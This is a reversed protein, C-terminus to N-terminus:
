SGAPVEAPVKSRNRRGGLALAPAGTLSVLLTLAYVFLGLLVAEGENVGHADLFLVLAGERVGLGGIASLNQVILVMPAFALWARLGPNVGIAAGALATAVVLLFQYALGVTLLRGAAGPHRRFVSLGTHVAGLAERIRTGGALRGLGRPHEAVWVILALVVLTGLALGGAIQGGSHSLLSPQSILAALTLLPLVVWGTLREIIVTAFANAQSGCIRALRNVRLVDGGITTPLFNGVFLAALYISLTSRGSVPVDLTDAVQWWRVAAMVFAAAIVLAAGTLWAAAASKSGVDLASLEDRSIIILLALLGASAGVRLATVLGHPIRARRQSPPVPATAGRM